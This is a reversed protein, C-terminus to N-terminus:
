ARHLILGSFSGGTVYAWRLLRRCDIMSHYKVLCIRACTIIMMLHRGPIRNNDEPDRSSSMVDGSVPRDRVPQDSGTMHYLVGCIAYRLGKVIKNELHRRRVKSMRAMSRFEDVDNMEEGNQTFGSHCDVTFTLLVRCGNVMLKVEETVIASTNFRKNADAVRSDFQCTDEEFGRKVWNTVM